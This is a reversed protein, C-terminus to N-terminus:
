QNWGTAHAPDHPILAIDFHRHPALSFLVFSPVLRASGLLLQKASASKSDTQRLFWFLSPCSLAATV